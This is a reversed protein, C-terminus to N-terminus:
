RKLTFHGSISENDTTLANFWYDSAPLLKGNYTGDWM